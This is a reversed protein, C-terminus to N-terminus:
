GERRWHTVEGVSCRHTGTSDIVFWVGVQRQFGRGLNTEVVERMHPSHHTADYWGDYCQVGSDQTATDM